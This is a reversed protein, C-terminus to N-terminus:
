KLLSHSKKSFIKSINVPKNDEIKLNHFKESIKVLDETLTNLQELANAVQHIGESSQNIVSNITDINQSIADSTASQEHSSTAVININDSVDKTAEIIEVLSKGAEDAKEKGNVVEKAGETISEVAFETDKQITKIMSAIEKTAKTTREALKRVEDAVVAFGRGQEGARAAEIAANLALLNTQDAIDNIVQIIEGIQQSSNGLAKITTEAKAVVNAIKNMGEVTQTIINGGKLALDGAKKSNNAALNASQSTSHITNTMEEIAGAVDFIQSSQEQSGTALQHVTASLRDTMESINIIAQKLTKVLDRINGVANNFGSLLKGINDDSDSKISVGLDGDAFAEMKELLLDVNNELYNKEFVKCNEKKNLGNFIAIAMEECNNYGCASCDLIDEKKTKLMVKYIEEIQAKSPIKLKALYNSEHLNVYKRDYLGPKWYKNLIKNIKIKNFRKSKLFGKKAYSEQMEKNRKDINKELEDVSKDRKTGTGGNCGHECNLCDIILPNNGRKIDEPLKNFYKYIITPGEIKRSINLLDPNEREVTKLLGGPTSFLVAREAADNDYDLSPYQNIRINNKKIYDVFSTLTVNYDGKGLENFERKKATCPSVILIKHNNYKPYFERVFKITHMMPSDAPALHKLLEPKYIECYTVLAPCPQAIILQPKNRKAHELYSKVTLEAGFSVDFIADIGLSKLWGNFNKYTDPFEAAIAPAVVAVMKERRNIAEIFPVFDDVIKRAE